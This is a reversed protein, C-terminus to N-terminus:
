VCYNWQGKIFKPYDDNRRCDQSQTLVSFSFIQGEELNKKRGCNKKKFIIYPSHFCPPNRVHPHFYSSFGPYISSLFGLLAARHACM